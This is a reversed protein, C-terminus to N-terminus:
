IHLKRLADRMKQEDRKDYRQTTRLDSHGLLRQVILIDVGANLLNTAFTRRLDHPSFKQTGAIAQLHELANRVGSVGLPLSKPHVQNNRNTRYFLPGPQDGRLALYKHLAALARPSLELVREKNGKGLIRMTREYKNFSAMSLGVSEERRLGLDTMLLVLAADRAARFPPFRAAQEVLLEIEQPTLERGAPARTGKVPKVEKILMYTHADILQLRFCHSLVGKIAALYLNSTNPALSQLMNSEEVSEKSQTMSSLTFLHNKFKNITLYTLKHWPFTFPDNWDFRRAVNSLVYEMRSKSNASPLDDLYATVAVRTLENTHDVGNLIIESNPQAALVLENSM